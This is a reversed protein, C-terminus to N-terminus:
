TSPTARACPPTARRGRRPRRPGPRDARAAEGRVGQRAAGAVPVDAFDPDAYFRARDAFALKKAEVFAHVRAPSAFGMGAIDFGELINLIQLAAIGQGNPPLEWVDVGRYNTSVPEVWEGHHAALDDYSLFGGADQVTRAIIRPWTARTSPTAGERALTEYTRALPENTWMEGKVPASATAPSPRWSSPSTRRAAKVSLQWYYAILESVPFGERAYRIAPALVEAMPLKGFKEHLQFWGDVCGPVSVPLM